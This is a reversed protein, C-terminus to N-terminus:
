GGDELEANPNLTKAQVMEFPNDQCKPQTLAYYQFKESMTLSHTCIFGSLERCSGMVRGSGGDGM